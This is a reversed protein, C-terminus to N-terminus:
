PHFYFIIYLDVDSIENQVSNFNYKYNDLVKSHLPGNFSSFDISLKSLTPNGLKTPCGKHENSQIVESSM